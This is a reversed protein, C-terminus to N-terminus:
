KAKVRITSASWINGLYPEPKTAEVIQSYSSATAADATVLAQYATLTPSSPNMAGYSNFLFFGGSFRPFVASAKVPDSPFTVIDASLLPLATESSYVSGPGVLYYDTSIQCNTATSWEPRGSGVIESPATAPVIAGYAPYIVSVTAYQYTRLPVTAWTRTFTVLDAVGLPTRPSDDCFYAPVAGGIEVPCLENPPPRRYAARRVMYPQTIVIHNPERAGLPNSIEPHGQPCAVEFGPQGPATEYHITGATSSM